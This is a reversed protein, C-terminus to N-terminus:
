VVHPPRTFQPSACLVGLDLTAGAPGILAYTLRHPSGDGCNGHVAIAGKDCQMPVTMGDIVLEHAQLDESPTAEIRLTAM